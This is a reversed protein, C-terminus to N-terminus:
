ETWTNTTIEKTKSCYIPESFPIIEIGMDDFDNFIKQSDYKGYFNKVGTHDRGVVFHTCGYNKRVLATFIAEKPGGYRSYTLLSSLIVRNQPMFKELYMEYSGM